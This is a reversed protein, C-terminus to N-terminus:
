ALCWTTEKGQWGQKREKHVNVRLMPIFEVTSATPASIGYSPIRPYSIRVAHRRRAGHGLPASRATRSKTQM